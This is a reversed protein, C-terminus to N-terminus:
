TYSGKRKAEFFIEVAYDTTGGGSFIKYTLLGPYRISRVDLKYRHHYYNCLAEGALKNVGYMTNPELVTRQPTRDRPTTSGFVAISSPWFVQALANQVAVDLVNKLGGVNVAWALDPTKEGDASLLTSLHCIADIRHKRVVTELAARDTVDITEYPGAARLTDAPLTRHGAAVVNEAGFRLRLAPTLDAGVQGVAGTVLFRTPRAM